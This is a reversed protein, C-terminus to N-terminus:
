TAMLQRELKRNKRRLNDGETRLEALTRADVEWAAECARLKGQLDELKALNRDVSDKGSVACAAEYLAPLRDEHDQLVEDLREVEAKLTDCETRLSDIEMMAKDTVRRDKDAERALARVDGMSSDAAMAKITDWNRYLMMYDSVQDKTYGEAKYVPIFEGHDLKDKWCTLVRGEHVYSEVAERVRRLRHKRAERLETRFQKVDDRDLLEAKDKVTMKSM